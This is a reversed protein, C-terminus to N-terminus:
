QTIKRYADVLKYDDSHYIKVYTEFRILRESARVWGLSLEKVRERGLVITAMTVFDAYKNGM